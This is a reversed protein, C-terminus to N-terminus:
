LFPMFYIAIILAIMSFGHEMRHIKLAFSSLREDFYPSDIMTSTIVGNRQIANTEITSNSAELEFFPPLIIDPFTYRQGFTEFKLCVYLLCGGDIAGMVFASFGTSCGRINTGNAINGYNCSYVGGYRPLINMNTSIREALCLTIDGPGKSRSFGAPCSYANTVPNEKTTTFSGGFVHMQNSGYNGSSTASADNQNCGYLYIDRRAM